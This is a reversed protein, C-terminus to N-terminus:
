KNQPAKLRLGTVLAAGGLGLCIVFAWRYSSTVDFIYGALVPGASGGINFSFSFVATIVGLAKLGFFEAGMVSQLCSLGGYGFGFLVAFLYLQWLQNAFQLWFLAALLIVLSAVATTKVKIRDAIIGMVIRGALSVGGILSLIAASNLTSYGLGTAHPVIHVMVTLQMAGFCLYIFAVMWFQKTRVAKGFTLGDGPRPLVARGRSPLLGRTGPDAVLFRAAVTIAILITIGIILYTLRWSTAAIVQTVVPPLALAGFSIGGSVLGTMLGRRTEFWRATTAVLPAWFGGVGVAIFFGYYFYFQWASHVTYMLAYGAALFFGCFTVVARPGLRDSFRGAFIGVVGAVLVSLSFAGSTLARSWNFEAELPGFFVGYIYYIGWGFVM